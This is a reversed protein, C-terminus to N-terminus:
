PSVANHCIRVLAAIAEHDKEGRPAGSIEAGSAVDLGFPRVQAIAAAANGANVGGALWVPQPALRRVADAAWAWDTRRGAGGFGEVAADLLTWAEDGSAEVLRELSPTGRVVKVWSEVRREPGFWLGRYAAPQMDGHLQIADLGVASAIEDIREPSEDVFVGVVRTRGRDLSAVLAKGEELSVARKSKPWFNLGIADVGLDVCARLDESRTIGCIKLATTGTM